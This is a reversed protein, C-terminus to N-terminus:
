DQYYNKSTRPRLTRTSAAATRTDRGGTSAASANSPSISIDNAALSSTGKPTTTTTTRRSKKRPKVAEKSGGAGGGGNYDDNSVEESDEEVDIMRVRKRGATRTSRRTEQPSKRQTNSNPAVSPSVAESTTTVVAAGNASQGSTGVGVGVDLKEGEGDIAIKVNENIGGGNDEDGIQESQRQQQHQAAADEALEAMTKPVFVNKPTDSTSINSMETIIDNPNDITMSEDEDLDYTIFDPADSASRASDEEELLEMKKDIDLKNNDNATSTSTPPHYSLVPQDPVYQFKPLHFAEVM